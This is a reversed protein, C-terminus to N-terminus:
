AEEVEVVPDGAALDAGDEPIVRLIRARAPLGTGGYTVRTFTKMLELLCLTKGPEVLDGPVVFPPESPSPCLFFRGAMPARFVLGTSSAETDKVSQSADEAERARLQLLAEGYAVAQSKQGPAARWIM